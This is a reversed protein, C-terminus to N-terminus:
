EMDELINSLARKHSFYVQLPEFILWALVVGYSGWVYTAYGGMAMFESWNSWNM